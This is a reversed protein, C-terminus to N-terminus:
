SASDQMADKKKYEKIEDDFILYFITAYFLSIIVVIPPCPTVITVTFPQRSLPNKNASSHDRTYVNRFARLQVFKVNLCAHLWMTQGRIVTFIRHFQNSIIRKMKKKLIPCLGTLIYISITKMPTRWGLQGEMNPRDQPHKARIQRDDNDICEMHDRWHIRKSRNQKEIDM